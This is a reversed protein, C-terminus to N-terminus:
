YMKQTIIEPIPPLSCFFLRWRCSHSRAMAQKGMLKGNKESYGLYFLLNQEELIDLSNRSKAMAKQTKYTKRGGSAVMLVPIMDVNKSMLGGINM